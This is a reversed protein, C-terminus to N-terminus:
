ETQAEINRVHETTVKPAGVPVDFVLIGNIEKTPVPATLGRRLLESVARGLTLSRYKAYSRASKLIDSDLNITTRPM